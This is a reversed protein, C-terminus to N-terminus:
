FLFRKTKKEHFLLSDVASIYMPCRCSAFMFFEKTTHPNEHEALDNIECSNTVDCTRQTVCPSKQPSEILKLQKDDRTAKSKNLFAGPHWWYFWHPGYIKPGNMSVHEFAFPSDNQGSDRNQRWHYPSAFPLTFEPRPQGPGNNTQRLSCPSCICATLLFPCLASAALKRGFVSLRPSPPCCPGLIIQWSTRFMTPTLLNRKLSHWICFFLEVIALFLRFFLFDLILACANLFSIDKGSRTRYSARQM